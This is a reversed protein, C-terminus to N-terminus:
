TASRIIFEQLDLVMDSVKPFKTQYDISIGSITLLPCPNISFFSQNVNNSLKVHTPETDFVTYCNWPHVSEAKRPSKLVSFSQLGSVLLM